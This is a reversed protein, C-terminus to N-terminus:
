LTWRLRPITNRAKRTEAATTTNKLARGHPLRCLRGVVGAHSELSDGCVLVDQRGGRKGAPLVLFRGGPMAYLARGYLNAGAPVGAAILQEGISRRWISTRAAPRGFEAAVEPGVEYCCGGIAPGIAAHLNQVDTDFDGGCPTSQAARSRACRAGGAPM